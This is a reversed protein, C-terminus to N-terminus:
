KIDNYYQDSISIFNTRLIHAHWDTLVTKWNSINKIDLQNIKWYIDRENDKILQLELDTNERHQTKHKSDFKVYKWQRNSM